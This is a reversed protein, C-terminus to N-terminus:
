CEARATWPSRRHRPGRPSSPGRLLLRCPLRSSQKVQGTGIHYARRLTGERHAMGLREIRQRHLIRTSSVVSHRGYQEQDKTKHPLRGTGSAPMTHVEDVVCDVYESARPLWQHCHSPWQSWCRRACWMLWVPDGSVAHQELSHHPANAQYREQCETRRAQRTNKATGRQSHHLAKMRISRQTSVILPTTM